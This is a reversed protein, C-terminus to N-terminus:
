TPAGQGEALDALLARVDRPSAVRHQAEVRDGVAISLGGARDVAAFGDLDTVDDGVFIPRRGAFPPEALYARIADAKTAVTPKLELVMKGELLHYDAGLRREFDRMKRRLEAEHEPAARYHLAVSLGKDELLTGSTRASLEALERRVEALEPTRAAVEHVTGAADRRELGHLGAVPWRLPAFLIDIAAIPRGSVLAVAGHLADHVQTLLELLEAEVHVADPTPAIELLTGDVDLFLCWEDRRAVVSPERGLLDHITSNSLSRRRPM